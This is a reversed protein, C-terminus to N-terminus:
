RRPPPEPLPRHLVQAFDVLVRYTVGWIHHGRFRVSPFQHVEGNREMRLKGRNKACLIHEVPIWFADAVEGNPALAAKEPGMYFVFPFLRIGMDAGRAIVPISPLPALFQAEDLVLGVEELTERRAAAMPSADGPDGMGGPFAMHGSWPDDEREARRIFCLDPAQEDGALVLAVAAYRGALKQADGNAPTEALASRIEEM